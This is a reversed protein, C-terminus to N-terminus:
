APGSGYGARTERAGLVKCVTTLLSDPSLPKELVAAAGCLTAAELLAGHMFGSMVLVKLNPLETRALKLVEFGDMDPMSLDLIMLEFFQDSLARLAERGNRAETVFYGTEELLRRFLTRIQAEDDAVLVCPAYPAPTRKGM